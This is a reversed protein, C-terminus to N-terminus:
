ALPEAFTSAYTTQGQEIAVTPVSEEPAIDFAVDLLVLATDPHRALATQAQGANRAHTLTCGPRLGCEWCPGRLECLTAYDYDRLLAHALEVYREGDDAILLKPRTPSM